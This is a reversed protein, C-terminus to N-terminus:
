DVTKKTRELNLKYDGEGNRNGTLWASNVIATFHERATRGRNGAVMTFCDDAPDDPVNYYFIQRPVLLLFLPQGVGRVTFVLSYDSGTCRVQCVNFRKPCSTMRSSILKKHMSVTELSLLTGSECHDNSFLSSMGSEGLADGVAARPEITGLEQNPHRVPFCDISGKELLSLNRFTRRQTVAATDLKPLPHKLSRVKLYHGVGQLAAPEDDAAYCFLLKIVRLCHLLSGRKVALGVLAALVDAQEKNSLEYGYMGYILSEAAAMIAGVVGSPCAGALPNVLATPNVKCTQDQPHMHKSSSHPSLFLAPTNAILSPIKRVLNLIGRANNNRQLSELLRCFVRIGIQASLLGSGNIECSLLNASNDPQQHSSPEALDAFLLDCLAQNSSLLKFDSHLAVFSERLRDPFTRNLVAPRPQDQTNWCRQYHSANHTLSLGGCHFCIKTGNSPKGRPPMRLGCLEDVQHELADDSCTAYADTEITGTTRRRWPFM